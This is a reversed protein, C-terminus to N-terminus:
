RFASAVPSGTLTDGQRVTYTRLQDRSDEVTPDIVVPKLLTGDALFQGESRRM